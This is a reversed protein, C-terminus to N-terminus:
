MLCPVQRCSPKEQQQAGCAAVQVTVSRVHMKSCTKTDHQTACAAASPPPDAAACPQQRAGAPLPLAARPHPRLQPPRATLTLQPRTPRRRCRRHLHPRCMCPHWNKSESLSPKPPQATLQPRTPRHPRCPRHTAPGRTHQGAFKISAPQTDRSAHTMHQPRRTPTYSGRKHPHMHAPASAPSVYM